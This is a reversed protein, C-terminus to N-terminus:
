HDDDDDDDDSDDNGEDNKIKMDNDVGFITM